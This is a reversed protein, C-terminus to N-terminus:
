KKIITFIDVIIAIESRLNLLFLSVINELFIKTGFKHITWRTFPLMPFIIGVKSQNNEKAYKIIGEKSIGSDYKYMSVKDVEEFEGFSLANLVIAWDNGVFRKDVLCKKLIETRYIGFIISNSGPKELFKKIRKNMNGRLPNTGTPRFNALFKGKKTKPKLNSDNLIIDGNKIGYRIVKSISCVIKKNLILEELNEKLFSELKIDDAAAWLFFESETKNLVFNYNWNIGMNKNQEFIKIRSDKEAFTRCINLTNDTSCNDSIIIEFNTHTQNLLSEISKKITKEGNFVPLGITVFVEKEDM